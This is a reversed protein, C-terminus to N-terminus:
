GGRKQREVLAKYLNDSPRLGLKKRIHARTSNINTETKGLVTCIEKLKKGQLILRCIERESQTLDPFIGDIMQMETERQLRYASVKEMISQQRDENLSDFLDGTKEWNDTRNRTIAILTSIEEKNTDLFQLLEEEEKRLMENESNLHSINKILRNGLLCIVIFVLVFLVYFNSLSPSETILMCATYTGISMAGLLYPLFKLYAVLAFMILIGSLVMNGVILMYHYDSPTLASYIMEVSIELQTVTAVVNLATTLSISGYLYLALLLVTIGLHMSNLWVFVSSEPGTTGILNFGIGVILLLSSYMYVAQKQRGLLHKERQEIHAKISLIKSYIETLIM